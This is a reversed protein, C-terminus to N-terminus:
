LPYRFIPCEFELFMHFGSMKINPLQITRVMQNAVMTFLEPVLAMQNGFKNGNSYPVILKSNLDGSYGFISTFIIQFYFQPDPEFTNLVIPIWIGFVSFGTWFLLNIPIWITRSNSIQVFTFQNQITPCDQIWVFHKTNIHRQIDFWKGVLCSHVMLIGFMNPIWIM